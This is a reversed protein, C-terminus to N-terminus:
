KSFSNSEAKLKANLSMAQLLFRQYSPISDAFEQGGLKFCALHHAYDLLTQVHESGLDLYEAESEPIPANASVDCTLTFKGDLHSSTTTPVPSLSVYNFSHQIVQQSDGRQNRWNPAVADQDWATTVGTEQNDIFARYVGPYVRAVVMADKVRMACYEARFKDRREGEAHQREEGHVRRLLAVADAGLRAGDGCELGGVDLLQLQGAVAALVLDGENERDEDDVLVVMRGNRLDAILEDTTHFENEMQSM